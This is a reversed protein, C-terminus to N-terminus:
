KWGSPVGFHKYKRCFECDETVPTAELVLVLPREAAATLPVRASHYHVNDDRYHAVVSYHGGPLGVLTFRGDEGTRYGDKWARNVPAGDEMLWVNVAEVDNDPAQLVGEVRLVPPRPPLRFELNTLEQGPELHVTAADGLAAAGTYYTAGWPSRQESWTREMPVKGPNILLQYDGALLRPILFAGDDFTYQKSGRTLDRTPPVGRIEVLEGPVPQGDAELLRGGISGIPVAMLNVRRCQGPSLDLHRTRLAEPLGNLGAELDYTGPAPLALSYEGHADTVTKWSLEGFRVTIPVGAAPRSAGYSLELDRPESTIFGFVSPPASASLLQRYVDLQRRDKLEATRSCTSTIIRTATSGQRSDILYDRGEQFKIDCSTQAFPIEVERDVDGHFRELVRVHAIRTRFELQFYFDLTGGSLREWDRTSEGPRLKRLAARREEDTLKEGADLKAAGAPSLMVHLRNLLDEETRPEIRIVRGVFIREYDRFGECTKRASSNCSCSWARGNWLVAAFLVLLVFRPCHVNM